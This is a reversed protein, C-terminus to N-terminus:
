LAIMKWGLFWSKCCVSDVGTLGVKMFNHGFSLKVVSLDLGSVWDFGSTIFMLMMFGENDLIAIRGDSSKSNCALLCWDRPRMVAMFLLDVAQGSYSVLQGNVM